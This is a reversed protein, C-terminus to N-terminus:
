TVLSAPHMCTRDLLLKWTLWWQWMRAEQPRSGSHVVCHTVVVYPTHCLPSEERVETSFKMAYGRNGELIMIKQSKIGLNSYM